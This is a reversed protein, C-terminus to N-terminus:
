RNNFRDIEFSSFVFPDIRVNTDQPLDYEKKRIIM